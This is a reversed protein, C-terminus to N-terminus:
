NNGQLACDIKRMVDRHRSISGGSAFIEGDKELHWQTRGKNPNFTPWPEVIVRSRSEWTYGSGKCTYCMDGVEKGEQLLFEEDDVEVVISQQDELVYGKGKCDSCHGYTEISPYSIGKGARRNVPSEKPVDVVAIVNDKVAVGDWESPPGGLVNWGKRSLARDIEAKSSMTNKM